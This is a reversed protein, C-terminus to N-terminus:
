RALSRVNSLDVGQYQDLDVDHIHVTRDKYPVVISKKVRNLMSILPCLICNFCLAFKPNKCQQM